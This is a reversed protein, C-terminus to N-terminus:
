EMLIKPILPSRLGEVFSERLQEAFEVGVLGDSSLDDDFIEM